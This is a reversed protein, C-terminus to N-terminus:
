SCSAKVLLRLGDRGKALCRRLVDRPRLLSRSRRLPALRHLDQRRWLEPWGCFSSSGAPSTSLLQWLSRAFCAWSQLPVRASLKLTGPRKSRLPEICEALWGSPLPFGKLAALDCGELLADWTAARPAEVSGGPVGAADGGYGEQGEQLGLSEGLSECVRPSDGRPAQLAETAGNTVRDCPECPRRQHPFAQQVISHVACARGGNVPSPM